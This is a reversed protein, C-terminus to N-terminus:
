EAPPEKEGGEIRRTIDAVLWELDRRADLAVRWSGGFPNSLDEIFSNILFFSGCVIAFLAAELKPAGLDVLVFSLLVVSAIAREALKQVPPLAAAVASVRTARANRLGVVTEAAAHCLATARGDADACRADLEDVLALLARDSPKLLATDARGDGAEATVRGDATAVFGTAILQAAGDRVTALLETRMDAVRAHRAALAEVIGDLSSLASVEGFMGNQIAGQRAFEYEYIQSLIISYILSLLTIFPGFADTASRRVGLVALFAVDAQFTAALYGWFSLVVVLALSGVRAVDSPIAPPAISAVGSDAAKAGGDAAKAYSPRIRGHKIAISTTPLPRFSPGLRWHKLPRFASVLSLTCALPVFVRSSGIM